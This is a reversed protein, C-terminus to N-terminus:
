IGDEKLSRTLFAPGFETGGTYSIFYDISYQLYKTESAILRIIFSIIAACRSRIFFFETAFSYLQLVSCRPDNKDINYVYLYFLIHKYLFLVVNKAVSTQRIESRESSIDSTCTSCM